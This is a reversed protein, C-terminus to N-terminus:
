VIATDKTITRNFEESPTNLLAIIQASISVAVEIPKKGPISLNGVPTVLPQQAADDFGRHALRTRFRKAKTDSGIMGVYPFRGAKLATEALTFDLQHDHTLILLWSNAPLLALEGEPQEDVITSVGQPINMASFVADRSDVWRISLPLQALIPVLAQAVHGAGFIALTQCHCTKIEFLVKVAGGCCQGLKSSLPYSEIHQSTNGEALFARAKNVVDFELHGGGITDYQSDGTIVMKAGQERPVSGAASLVTVLVYAESHQHCYSIADFWTRPRMM